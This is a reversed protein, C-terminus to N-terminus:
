DKITGIETVTTNALSKELVLNIQANSLRNNLLVIGRSNEGKISLFVPVPDKPYCQSIIADETNILQIHQPSNLSAAALLGTIKLMSIDECFVAPREDESTFRMHLDSLTINKAHRIYFGYAPLVGFIKGNPYSQEQEPIKRFSDQAKGGGEFALNVNSILINEVPIDKLGAIICGYNSSIGTGQINEIIIDKLQPPNVSANKRYTRNRNGM